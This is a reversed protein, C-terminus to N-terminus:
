GDSDDNEEDAPVLIQVAQPVVSITLPTPDWIEGDGTVAMPPDAEIVAEKVKWQPLPKGISDKKSISGAVSLLSDLDRQRIVIVDLLGDSVDVSQAINVNPIGLSASNAVMCWLGQLEEVQGDLTLRYNAIPPNKLSKLGALTYALGGYRDKMERDALENIEAEYGVGVRLIFLQDNARGMDIPRLKAPLVAILGAAQVLDKPIGLEVSLVNNTGGPLIALPLTTGILGSAAEMVTGDGGYVAVIDYDGSQAAEKALRAADGSKKTIAIDWDIKAPYFVSNLNNLITADQGSAPNVIVFVKKIEPGVRKTGKNLDDLFEEPLDDMTVKAGAEVAEQGKKQVDILQDLEAENLLQRYTHGGFSKLSEIIQDSKDHECLIVLASSSGSMDKLINNLFTHTFNQNPKKSVNRGILGGGLVGIIVGAVGIPPAVITLLGGALAGLRTGKKRAVDLTAETSTKGQLDKVLVAATIVQQPQHNQIKQLEKFAEGAKTDNNYATVVIELGPEQTM